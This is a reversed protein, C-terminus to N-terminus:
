QGQQKLMTRLQHLTLAQKKAYTPHSAAYKDPLHHILSNQLDDVSLVKVVGCRVYVNSAAGERIGAYNHTEDFYNGSQLVTQLQKATLLYSGQHVNQVEFYKKKNAMINFQRITPHLHIKLLIRSPIVGIINKIVSYLRIRSATHKPHCDILYKDADNGKAEYRLFGPVYNTNELNKSHTVFVDLNKETILIDNESYIFIDFKDKNEFIFKKHKHALWYGLSKDFIEQRIGLRSYKLDKVYETNLLIVNIKYKKFRNYEQLVRKLYQIQKNGYNAIVVLVKSKNEKSM